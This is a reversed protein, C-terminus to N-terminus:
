SRGIMLDCVTSQRPELTSVSVHPGRQAQFKELKGLSIRWNALTSLACLSWASLYTEQAFHRVKVCKNGSIM